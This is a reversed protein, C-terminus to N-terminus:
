PFSDDEDDDEDEHEFIRLIGGPNVILM